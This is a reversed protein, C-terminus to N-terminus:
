HVNSKYSLVLKQPLVRDSLTRNLSDFARKFDIFIAYISARFENCQEFLIRLTNILDVCSRGSRFGHQNERINAEAARAMRDLIIRSLIKSPIPLVTIGRYNACNSLDGKKPIKILIGENWSDPFSEDNWVKQIIPLWINAAM